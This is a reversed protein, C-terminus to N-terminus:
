GADSSLRFNVDNESVQRRFLMAKQPNNVFRAFIVKVSSGIRSPPKAVAPLIPQIPRQKADM